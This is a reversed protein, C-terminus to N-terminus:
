NFFSLSCSNNIYLIFSPVVNSVACIIFSYHLQLVLLKWPVPKMVWMFHVLYQFPVVQWHESFFFYTTWIILSTLGSISLREPFFFVSKSSNVPSIKFINLFSDILKSLRGIIVSFLLLPFVKFNIRNWKM